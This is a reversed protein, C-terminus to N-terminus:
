RGSTVQLCLRRHEAASRCGMDAICVQFVPHALPRVHQTGVAWVGGHCFLAVPTGGKGDPGVADPAGPPVYVDVVNRAKRGYSCGLVDHEHWAELTSHSPRTVQTM